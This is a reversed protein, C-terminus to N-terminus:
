LIYVLIYVNDEKFFINLLTKDDRYNAFVFFFIVTKKTIKTLLETCTKAFSLLVKMLEFVHQGDSPIKVHFSNEM